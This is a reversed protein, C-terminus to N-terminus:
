SIRGQLLVDVSAVPKDQIDKSTIGSIAAVTNRRTQRQMGVIVVDNLQNNSENLAVVVHTEGEGITITKPDYGVFSVHLSVKGNPVSIEFKGGEKSIANTKSGRLAITAGELLSKSKANEVVGSIRRQAIGASSFLLLALIVFGSKLLKSKKM